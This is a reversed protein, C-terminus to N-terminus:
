TASDDPTPAPQRQGGARRPRPPHPPRRARGGLGGAPPDVSISPVPAEVLRLFIFVLAALASAASLFPLSILTAALSCVWAM